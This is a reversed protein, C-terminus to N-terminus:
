KDCHKLRLGRKSAYRFKITARGDRFGRANEHLRIHAIHGEQKFAAWVDQTTSDDPLDCVKIFVQEDNAWINQIKHDRGTVTSPSSAENSPHPTSHQLAVNLWGHSCSQNNVDKNRMTVLTSKTAHLSHQPLLNVPQPAPKHQALTVFTSSVSQFSKSTGSRKYVPASSESSAEATQDKMKLNEFAVVADHLKAAKELLFKQRAAKIGQHGRRGQPVTPSSAEFSSCAQKSPSPDLEMPICDRFCSVDSIPSLLLQQQGDSNPNTRMDRAGDGLTREMGTYPLRLALGGDDSGSCHFRHSSSLEISSSSDSDRGVNIDVHDAAASVEMM